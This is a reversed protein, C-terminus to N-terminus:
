AGYERLLWREAEDARREIRDMERLLNDASARNRHGHGHGHRHGNDRRTGGRRGSRRRRRSGDGYYDFDHDYFGADLGYDYGFGFDYYYDSAGLRDPDFDFVRGYDYMPELGCAGHGWGWQRDPEWDQESRPRRRPTPGDAAAVDVTAAAIADVATRAGAGAEVEVERLPGDEVGESLDMAGMATCAFSKSRAMDVTTWGDPIAPGAPTTTIGGITTKTMFPVKSTSADAARTATEAEATATELSRFAPSPQQSPAANPTEEDM